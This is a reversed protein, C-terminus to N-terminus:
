GLLGTSQDRVVGVPSGEQPSSGIVGPLSDQLPQSEGIQDLQVLRLQLEDGAAGIEVTAALPEQISADPQDDDGPAGPSGVEVVATRLAEHGSEPYVLYVDRAAAIAEHGPQQGTQQLPVTVQLSQRPGVQTGDQAKGVGHARECRSAFTHDWGQWRPLGHLSEECCVGRRSM